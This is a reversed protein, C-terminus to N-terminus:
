TSREAVLETLQTARTLAPRAPHGEDLARAVARGQSLGRGHSLALAYRHEGLVTRARRACERRPENAHRSGFQPLGATEWISTAAGQLVAAELCPEEGPWETLLVAVMEVALVVGVLDGFAHHIRLSARALEIARAPEGAAWARYSDVCQLPRKGRSEAPEADGQAFAVQALAWLAKGRQPSPTPDVALLHELWRRGEALFGCGIWYCWLTAALEMGEDAREPATLCFALARRLNGHEVFTRVFVKEQGHRSWVAESERAARAYYALHRARLEGTQGGDLRDLWAAGYARVTELLRYRVGGAADDRMVISKDVLASVVELIVWEPLREDACVQEAADLDFSGGFVSLRAWLLREHTGCLEHSWGLATRLTMHRAPLSRRGGTLLDFRDHLRETIQEVSMARLRVAALELALPIGDLGACLDAVTARNDDTLEFRTVAAAREVFLAVSEHRAASAPEGPDPVPMAPVVLLHEGPVDLAQRSTVMVTLRPCARLLTDVLLACPHVVHDVGDLLLLAHRGYLHDILLDAPTGADEGPLGLAGCVENAVLDPDDLDHLQVFWVGDPFSAAAERAAQVALRSKGIGGLGTLTVLRAVGLLRRAAVLEVRRGVFGTVDAPLNSREM